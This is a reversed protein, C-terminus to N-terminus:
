RKKRIVYDSGIIMSNLMAVVFSILAAYYELSLRKRHVGSVRDAFQEVMQLQLKVADWGPYFFGPM